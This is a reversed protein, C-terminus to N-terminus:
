NKELKVDIISVRHHAISCHKKKLASEPHSGNIVVSENDCFIRSPGNLPVGFM